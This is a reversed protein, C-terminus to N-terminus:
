FYPKEKFIVSYKITTYFKAKMQTKINHVPIQICLETELCFESVGNKMLFPAYLVSRKM